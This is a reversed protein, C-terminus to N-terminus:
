RLSLQRAGQYYLQQEDVVLSPLKGSFQKFDRIFHAQDSYGFHYSLSAWNPAGQQRQVYGYAHAFRIIRMFTKPSTGISDKFRRQLQRPSIYLQGSLEELSINGASQRIIRTAEVIYNRGHQRDRLYQLLFDEALMIRDGTSTAQRMRDTLEDAIKGFFHRTDTYEQFVVSVPIGFLELLCEPKIRIGFIRSNGAGKWSAPVDYLGAIFSAPLIDRKGGITVEFPDENLTFILEMLGLPLCEQEPTVDAATGNFDATWYCEVYPKLADGPSFERYSVDAIIPRQM